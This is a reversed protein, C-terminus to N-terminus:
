KKITENTIFESKTKFIEKMLKRNLKVNVNLM